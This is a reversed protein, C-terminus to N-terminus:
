RSGSFTSVMKKLSFFISTSGKCTLSLRCRLAPFLVSRSAHFSSDPYALVSIANWSRLPIDTSCVAPHTRVSDRAPFSARSMQLLDEPGLFLHAFVPSTGSFNLRFSRLTPESIRAPPLSSGAAKYPPPIAPFLIVLCVDQRVMRMFFARGPDEGLLAYKPYFM